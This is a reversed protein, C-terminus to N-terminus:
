KIAQLFMRAVRYLGATDATMRQVSKPETLRESSNRMRVPWRSFQIREREALGTHVSERDAVSFEELQWEGGDQKILEYFTDAAEELKTVEEPTNGVLYGGIRNGHIQLHVELRADQGYEACISVSTEEGGSDALTLHVRGLQDGIYMPLLYERSAGQSDAGKAMAAALSFQKHLMQLERVDVSSGANELTAREVQERIGQLLSHYHEDFAEADKKESLATMNETLTEQSLGLQTEKDKWKKYPALHTELLDQAALLNDTTIGLGAQELLIYSEQRVQGAARVRELAANRYHTEIQQSISQEERLLEQLLGTEDTVKVDMHPFNRSRAASLLNAFQLEAGTNVVSGVAAGDAKEVQHILRYIGIYAEREQPTIHHNQELHYLFRSYSDATEGYERPLTDFYENLESFSMDLPNRGDRIMRLVAAPTMRSVASQVQEDAAKVREINEETLEMSNYGLIRVARRNEENVELDLDRLIDDVNAFAKRISDGMDSRPVTMLAEYSEQARGYSERLATGEQHFQVVTGEGERLSWSGLIRAPMGPLEGTVRNTERYLEYKPLAQPDEPFYTDALEAEAQELAKLLEEMPATDIAFGSKLLKVNVEATMRLRIEELQRRVSIDNKDLFADMRSVFQETLVAAKEYITEKQHLDGHIPSRGEALAAGAAAAFTEEDVPFAASQLEQLRLLNEETLPLGQEMLWDMAQRSEQNLPLGAEEIIQDIQQQIRQQAADFEGSQALYGKIDEAYYRPGTGTRGEAGSSQALYFNWIEPDMGNDIMYRAAGESMDELQSAMDWAQRVQAINEETLPLDMRQFTETISRALTESGVAAALVETDLDDTYGVIHQGSRALEAKIKDVITVAEGPDMSSFDFGEKELQAYDEQSLTHSMITMYNRRVGVDISAAEQQLEAFTTNKGKSGVLWSSAGEGFSVGYAPHAREQQWFQTRGLPSGNAKSAGIGADGMQKESGQIGQTNFTIKM